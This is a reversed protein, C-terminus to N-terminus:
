KYNCRIHRCILILTSILCVIQLIKIFIFWKLYSYEDIKLLIRLFCLLILLCEMSQLWMQYKSMNTNNLYMVILSLQGNLCSHDIIIYSFVLFVCYFWFAHWLKCICRTYRYLLILTNILCLNHSHKTFRHAVLRLHRGIDLFYKRYKKLCLAINGEQGPFCDRFWFNPEM